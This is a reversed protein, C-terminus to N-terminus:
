ITIERLYANLIESDKSMQDRLDNENKFKIEERLYKFFEIKLKEGSLDNNFDKLWVETVIPGNEEFTPRRGISALGWRIQQEFLVRVIHIGLGPLLKEDPIELNATPFGLRKGIGHGKVVIGTVFFPYGLLSQTAAYDGEDLLERILTTKVPIGNVMVPDVVRLTFNLERSFEELLKINGQRNRGFLFDWGVVIGRARLKKYLIQAIFNEATMSTFDSSMKQYIVHDIPWNSLLDRREDLTLVFKLNQNKFIPNNLDPILSLIASECGIEDALNINENILAIHGLHLADAKGILVSVGKEPPTFDDISEYIRM